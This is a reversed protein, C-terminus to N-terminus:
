SAPPENAKPSLTELPSGPREGGVRARFVYYTWVQYLVVIPVMVVAVITMVKLAYHSSSANATTLSNAFTPSSVLVRPYLGTFFTAVVLVTGLATM